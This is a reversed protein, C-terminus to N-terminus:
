SGDFSGPWARAMALTAMALPLVWLAFWPLQDRIVVRRLVHLTFLGLAGAIVTGAVWPLFAVDAWGDQMLELLLAAAVTPIGLLMSLEFARDCRVGLWLATVLTAATRSIGPLVAIGQAVGVVIAAWANPSPVSARAAWTSSVLLLGTLAFGFGIALPERSFSRASACLFLGILATPACALAIFVVDQGSSPDYGQQRRGLLAVLERALRALRRRFFFLTALLTGVRMFSSQARQGEELDFLTSALALHGSGSLPWLETLGRLAGLLALLEPPTNM